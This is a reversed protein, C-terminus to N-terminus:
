GNEQDSYQLYLDTFLKAFQLYSILYESKQENEM